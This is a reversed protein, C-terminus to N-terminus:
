GIIAETLFCFQSVESGGCASVKTLSVLGAVGEPLNHRRSIVSFRCVHYKLFIGLTLRHLSLM